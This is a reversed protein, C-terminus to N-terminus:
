AYGLAEMKKHFVPAVRGNLDVAEKSSTARITQQAYSLATDDGSLHCRDFVRHVTERPTSVLDEYRVRTVADPYKEEYVMGEDMALVWELAARDVHRDLGLLEERRVQLAPHTPAVQEVLLRWKRDDVGWWDHQEGDGQTGHRESWAEVSRITDWGNRVVFLFQADPFISRVFPIRFILEPYKDLVRSAGVATLYAGFLRHARRVVAEDADHVGLRYTAPGRDYNGIVDEHPYIAHWLAKPENVFGVDRHLSLVKGLITTGSRGTGVIFIPQHVSKLQPIKKTAALQAFVLPNIWRGRTTVPRGEFLAYSVLRSLAKAPRAWVYDADLQAIM